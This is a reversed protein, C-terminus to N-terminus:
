RATRPRRNDDDFTASKVVAIVNDAHCKQCIVSEKGLRTNQAVPDNISGSPWNATFGTGQDFDHLALMNVAAGKLRSYWDSDVGPVIGYYANWFQYEADTIAELSDGPNVTTGDGAYPFSFDNRIFSPSNVNPVGSGDTAPVSHCRECNPIDIPATGFGIVPHGNSGLVASGQTCNGYTQSAPDQDCNAEHLRAKM